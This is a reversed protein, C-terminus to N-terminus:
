IMYENQWDDHLAQIEEIATILNHNINEIDTEIENFLIHSKPNDIVIKQLEHFKREILNIVFTRGSKYSNYSGTLALTYLVSLLEEKRNETAFQDTGFEDVIIGRIDNEFGDHIKSINLKRLNKRLNSANMKYENVCLLILKMHGNLIKDKKYSLVIEHNDIKFIGSVDINEIFYNEDNQLDGKSNKGDFTIFNKDDFYSKVISILSKLSALDGKDIEKAKEKYKDIIELNPLERSHKNGIKNLGPFITKLKGSVVGLLFASGALIGIITGITELNYNSLISGSKTFINTNEDLLAKEKIVTFEINNPKILDLPLYGVKTLDTAEFGNSSLKTSEFNIAWSGIRDNKSLSNYEELVVYFEIQNQPPILLKDVILTDIVSSIPFFREGDKNARISIDFNNINIWLNNNNIITFRIALKQELPINEDLNLTAIKSDVLEANIDLNYESASVISISSFFLFVFFIVGLKRM